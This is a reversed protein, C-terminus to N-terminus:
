EGQMLAVVDTVQVSREVPDDAQVVMVVTPLSPSIATITAEFYTKEKQRVLVTDGIGAEFSAPKTPSHLCQSIKIKM